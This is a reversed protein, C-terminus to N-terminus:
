PAALEFAEVVIAGSRAAQQAAVASSGRSPGVLSVSAALSHPDVLALEPDAAVAVAGPGGSKLAGAAARASRASAGLAVHLDVMAEDLVRPSMAVLAWPFRAIAPEPELIKEEYTAAVSRSQSVSYTDTGITVGAPLRDFSRGALRDAETLEMFQGRAFHELVPASATAPKGGVEVTTITFEATGETLTKTGLRDIRVGLPVAKQRVSLQGLPHAVPLTAGRVEAITVLADGGM